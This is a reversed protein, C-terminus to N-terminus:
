CGLTVVGGGALGTMWRAWHNQRKLCREFDKPPALVTRSFKQMNGLLEHAGNNRDPEAKEDHKSPHESESNHVEEGSPATVAVHELEEVQELTSINDAALNDYNWNATKNHLSL